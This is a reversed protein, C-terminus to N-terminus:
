PHQAHWAEEVACKLSALTQPIPAHRMGGVLRDIGPRTVHAQLPPEGIVFIGQAMAVPLHEGGATGKLTMVVREGVAPASAGEVRQGIEGVHGGLTLVDVQQPTHDRGAWLEDVRVKSLTYIRPGQWFSQEHEIQGLVVLDARHVLEQLSLRRATSAHATLGGLIVVSLAIFPLRM